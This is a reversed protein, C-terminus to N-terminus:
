ARATKADLAFMVMGIILGAVFGSAHASFSVQPLSLDITVQLALIAGLMVVNRRDIADRSRVWAMIRHAVLGGFVAMIAGSAGMLVAQPIVGSQMLWLVSAMSALGGVAYILLMRLSGFMLEAQRGLLWIM